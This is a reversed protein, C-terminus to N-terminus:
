FALHDTPERENGYSESLVVTWMLNDDVDDIIIRGDSVEMGFAESKLKSLIGKVCDQMRWVGKKRVYLEMVHECVRIMMSEGNKSVFIKIVNDKPWIVHEVLTLDSLRVVYCHDGDIKSECVLMMHTITENFRFYMGKDTDYSHLLPLVASKSEKFDLIVAYINGHYSERAMVVHYRLTATRDQAIEFIEREANLCQCCATPLSTTIEDPTAGYLTRTVTLCNESLKSSLTEFPITIGDADKNTLVTCCRRMGVDEPGREYEHSSNFIAEHYEKEEQTADHLSKIYLGRPAYDTIIKAIDPLLIGGSAEIIHETM